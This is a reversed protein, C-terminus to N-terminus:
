PLRSQPGLGVTEDPREACIAPRGFLESALAQVQPIRSSGGVLLVGSAESLAWGADGLAREIPGVMRKLLPAWAKAADAREIQGYWPETKGTCFIVLQATETKSLQKKAREAIELLHHPQSQLEDEALLEKITEALAATFEDGGLRMDGASAQIEIVGEDIELLTVDFTGGGLDLVAIQAVADRNQFGHALAAATPENILRRCTLGALEAANRTATRQADGFYAPVTIVAESVEGGLVAEADAKLSKLILASLEIASLSEKGLKRQASTGMDRKFSLACIEPRREALARAAAGVLLTGSDDLAVASPTLLEGLENPIISPRGNDITSVLSFTTGLDMGVIFTGDPKKM